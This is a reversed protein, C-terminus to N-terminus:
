LYMLLQTPAEGRKKSDGRHHPNQPHAPLVSAFHVCVRHTHTHTDRLACAGLTVFHRRIYAFTHCLMTLTAIRKTRTYDVPASAEVFCEPASPTVRHRRRRRRRCRSDCFKQACSGCYNNCTHLLSLSLSTDRVYALSCTFMRALM